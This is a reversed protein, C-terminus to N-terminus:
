CGRGPPVKARIGSGTTVTARLAVTGVPDIANGSAASEDAGQEFTGRRGVWGNPPLPWEIVKTELSRDGGQVLHGFQHDRTRAVPTCPFSPPCPRLFTGNPRVAPLIM